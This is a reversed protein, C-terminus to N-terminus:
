HQAMTLLRILDVPGTKSKVSPKPPDWLLFREWDLLAAEHMGTSLKQLLQGSYYCSRSIQAYYALQDLFEYESAGFGMGASGYEARGRWGM